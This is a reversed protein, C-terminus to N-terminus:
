DKSESAPQRFALEPGDAIAFFASFFVTQPLDRGKGKGGLGAGELARKEDDSSSSIAGLAGCGVRGVWGVFDLEEEAPVAGSLFFVRVCPTTKQLICFQDTLALSLPFM